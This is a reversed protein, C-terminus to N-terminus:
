DQKESKSVFLISIQFSKKTLIKLTLHSFFYKQKQAQDVVSSFNMHNHIYLFVNIEEPVYYSLMFKDAM